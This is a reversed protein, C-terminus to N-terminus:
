IKEKFPAGEWVRTTPITSRARWFHSFSFPQQWSIRHSTLLVSEACHSWKRAPPPFPPLVDPRTTRRRELTLAKGVLSRLEGPNIAHFYPFPMASGAGKGDVCLRPAKVYVQAMGETRSWRRHIWCLSTWPTNHFAM